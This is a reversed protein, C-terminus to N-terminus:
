LSQLFVGQDGQLVRYVNATYVCLSWENPVEYEVLYYMSIYLLLIRSFAAVRLIQVEYSFLKNMSVDFGVGAPVIYAWYM